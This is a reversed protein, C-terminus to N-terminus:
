SIEGGRPRKANGSLFVEMRKGAKGKRCEESGKKLLFARRKKWELVPRKFEM